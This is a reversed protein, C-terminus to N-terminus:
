PESYHRPWANAMRQTSAGLLAKAMYKGHTLNLESYYMQWVTVIARAMCKGYRRWANVMCKSYIQWVNVIYKSYM